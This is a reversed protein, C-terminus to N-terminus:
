LNGIKSVEAVAKHPKLQYVVIFHLKTSTTTKSITGPHLLVAVEGWQDKYHTIKMEKWVMGFWDLGWFLQWTHGRANVIKFGKDRM